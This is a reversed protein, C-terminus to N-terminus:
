ESMQMEQDLEYEYLLLNKRAEEQAAYFSKRLELLAKDLEGLPDGKIGKRVGGFTKVTLDNLMTQAIENGQGAAKEFWERAKPISHEVHEGKIYEFGLKVQAWENGKEALDSLYGMGKELNYAASGEDLFEKVLSYKAWENGKEASTELYQIGKELNYIELDPDIYLKGLLYQAYENGQEASAKLYQIGKELDYIELDPDVYLKGLQYQAYEQEKLAAKEYEKIGKELDFYEWDSTYIKGLTYQANVNDGKESLEELAKILQFMDEAAIGENVYINSLLLIGPINKQKVASKLYGIAEDTNQKCGKGFYLMSGIQYEFLPDAEKEAAKMFGEFAAKYCRQAEELDQETGLGEGAMKACELKAFPTNSSRFLQFAKEYDQKVGRGEYYLKGLAYRAYDENSEEFWEAAIEPDEEVGWGRDYQKGIRYALYKSFDFKGNEPAPIEYIDREFRDLASQFHLQAKEWSVEVLLGNLHMEGLLHQIFPNDEAKEYIEKLLVETGGVGTLLEDRLKEKAEKFEKFYKEYSLVVPKDQVLNERETQKGSGFLFKEAEKLEEALEGSIDKKEAYLKFDQHPSQEEGSDMGEVEFEASNPNEIIEGADVDWSTTEQAHAHYSSSGKWGQDQRFFVEAKESLGDLYSRVSKLTANGMRQMLEQLKDEKYYGFKQGGYAEEYLASQHDLIEILEHYKEPCYQDLFVKSIEDLRGRHQGMARNNYNMMNKPIFSIEECMELFKEKIVPDTTLEYQKLHDVIDKRIIQNIRLNVEKTQAIENVVASKCRNINSQKFKGRVELKGEYLMKQRMPYPEVTAIHVHINDTNYHIGASWVAHEMGESELLRNVALRVTEKIKQEDLVKKEPDYVGNKELWLNDFSIVTQWMLSQNKQAMEFVSKLEKKETYTLSDKDKTFLGSSKEPNGMYENYQEYDSFINYTSFANNRQAEERDIYDVYSKFKDAGPRCFDQMLTVGAKIKREVM